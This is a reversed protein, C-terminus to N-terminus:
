LLLERIILNNNLFFFNPIIYTNDFKISKVIQDTVFIEKNQFMIEFLINTLLKITSSKGRIYKSIGMVNGDRISTGVLNGDRISSCDLFCRSHLDFSLFLNPLPAPLTMFDLILWLLAFVSQLHSHSFSFSSFLLCWFFAYFSYCGLLFLPASCSCPSVCVYLCVSHSFPLSPSHFLSRSPLLPLRRQLHIQKHPNDTHKACRAAPEEEKAEEQAGKKKKRRQDGWHDQKGRGEDGWRAREWRRRKVKLFKVVIALIKNQQKPRRMEEAKQKLRQNAKNRKTKIKKQTRTKQKTKLEFVCLCILVSATCHLFTSWSHAYNLPPRKIM